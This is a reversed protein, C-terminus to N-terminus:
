AARANEKQEIGNPRLRMCCRAANGCVCAGTNSAVGATDTRARVLAALGDIFVPDDMVTEVRAFGPVGLNEAAERYEHGIEVLTEVHESVFAHPYIVVPVRDLAAMELADDTSPGIWKLPGVRSQYCIMWDLDPIGTAAAIAAASEECQRQYPDGQKIIKEPLGHASFLVRPRNGDPHDACMKTYVARVRAASASVFGTDQPYCCVLATPVNLDIESTAREWEGLSSWTTTTSFQPYLPLLVIHDPRYAAVDRVVREAMPHWYRMCVHVSYEADSDFKNLAALLASAQRMTNELLPSKDGLMAYSDGAEKRSRKWAIYRALLARVPKPAGIINPDNFFNLLFPRIAARSDPGGLNFLVVAVKKTM